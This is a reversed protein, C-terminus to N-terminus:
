YQGSNAPRALPQAGYALGLVGVNGMSAFVQEAYLEGGGVGATADFIDLGSGVAGFWESTNQPDPNGQSQALLAAGGLINSRRDTKLQEEPIGTLESAVGLTNTSPNQVLAMIGYGGWGHPDGEEYASLEPPPMEWRTNVYGMAALVEAPVGYESAAEEFERALDASPSPSGSGDQALAASSGLPYGPISGALMIGAIGVGSLKLFRKRDIGQYNVAGCVNGRRGCGPYDSGASSGSGETRM